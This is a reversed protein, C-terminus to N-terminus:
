WLLICGIRGPSWVASWSQILSGYLVPIMRYCYKAFHLFIGQRYLRASMNGACSSSFPSGECIDTVLLLTVAAANHGGMSPNICSRYSIPPIVPIPSCWSTVMQCSHEWFYLLWRRLVIIWRYTIAHMTRSHWCGCYAQAEMGQRTILLFFKM